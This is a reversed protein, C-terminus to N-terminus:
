KSTAAPNRTGGNSNTTKNNADQATNGDIDEDLVANPDTFPDSNGPNYQNRARFAAMEDASIGYQKMLAELTIDKTSEFTFESKTITDYKNINGEIVAKQQPTMLMLAILVLSAFVLISIGFTIIYSKNM